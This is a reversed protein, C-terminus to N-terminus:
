PPMVSFTCDHKMAALFAFLPGSMMYGSLGRHRKPLTDLMASLAAYRWELRTLSCRSPFPLRTFSGNKDGYEGSRFGALHKPGLALRLHAQREPPRGLSVKPLLRQKNILRGFYHELRAVNQEPIHVFFIERM